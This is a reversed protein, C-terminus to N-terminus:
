KTKEKWYAIQEETLKDAYFEVALWPMERVLYDLRKDIVQSEKVYLLARKGGRLPNGNIIFVTRNLPWGTSKDEFYGEPMEPYIKWGRFFFDDGIKEVKENRMANFWGDNYRKGMEELATTNLNEM